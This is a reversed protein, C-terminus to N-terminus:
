PRSYDVQYPTQTGQCLSIIEHTRLCFNKTIKASYATTLLRQIIDDLGAPTLTNMTLSSFPSMTGMSGGLSTGESSFTPTKPPDGGALTPSSATDSHPKILIPEINHPMLTDLAANPHSSPPDSSTGPTSLSASNKPSNSGKNKTSSAHPPTPPPQPEPTGDEEVGSTGDRLSRSTLIIKV